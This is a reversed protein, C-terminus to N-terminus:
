SHLKREERKGPIPRVVHDLLQRRQEDTAPWSRGCQLCWFSLTYLRFLADGAAYSLTGSHDRPCTASFDIRRAADTIEFWETCGDACSHSLPVAADALQQASVLNAARQVARGEGARAIAALFEGARQQTVVSIWGNDHLRYFNSRPQAVEVAPRSLLGIGSWEPAGEASTLRSRADNWM